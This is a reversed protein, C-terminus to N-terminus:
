GLGRVGGSPAPKGSARKRGSERADAREQEQPSRLPEEAGQPADDPREHGIKRQDWLMRLLRPTVGRIEQWPFPDGITYTKGDVTLERKLVFLPRDEKLTAHGRIRGM